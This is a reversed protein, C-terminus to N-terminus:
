SIMGAQPRSCAEAESTGYGPLSVPLLVEVVGRTVGTLRRLPIVSDPLMATFDGTLETDATAVIIRSFFRGHGTVQQPESNNGCLVVCPRSNALV